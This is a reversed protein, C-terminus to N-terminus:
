TCEDVSHCSCQTTVVVRRTTVMDVSGSPLSFQRARAVASACCASVLLSLFCAGHLWPAVAHELLGAAGRLRSSRIMDGVLLSTSCVAHALTACTPRYMQDPLRHVGGAARRRRWHVPGYLSMAIPSLRDLFGHFPHSQARYMQCRCSAGAAPHTHHM